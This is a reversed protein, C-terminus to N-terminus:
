GNQIIQELWQNVERSHTYQILHKAGTLTVVDSENSFPIIPDNEGQIEFVPFSVQPPLYQDKPSWSACARLSWKFFRFDINRLMVALQEAHESNLGESRVFKYILQRQLAWKLCGSPLISGIIAQIRFPARIIAQTRGSSILIVGKVKGPYKQNVADAIELAVMGGFSFGGLYIGNSSMLVPQSQLYSALRRGYETLGESSKPVIWDPTFLRDGFFKRQESFLSSDAGLGPFLILTLPKM